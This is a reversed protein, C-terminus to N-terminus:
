APARAPAPLVDGATITEADGDARRLLMRGAEDIGEFRGEREGDPLAVRITKGLGFARKLWDDRIAAFGAGRNWQALRAAMAPSLEAFVSDPTARM